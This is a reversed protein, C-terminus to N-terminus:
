SPTLLRLARPAGGQVLRFIFWPTMKPGRPLENQNCPRDRSIRNYNSRMKGSFNQRTLKNTLKDVISKGISQKEVFM